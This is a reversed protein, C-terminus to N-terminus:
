DNVTSNQKALGGIDANEPDQQIDQQDSKEVM